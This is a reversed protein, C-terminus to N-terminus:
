VFEYDAFSELNTLTHYIKYMATKQSCRNSKMIGTLIHHVEKNSTPVPQCQQFQKTILNGTKYFKCIMKM